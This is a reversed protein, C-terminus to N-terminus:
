LGGLTVDFFERTDEAVQRHTDSRSVGDKEICISPAVVRGMIGCEALFTYHGVGPLVALRSGPILEAVRRANSDGPATIDRDGVFILTPVSIDKLSEETLAMGAAPAIAVISRIRPDRYSLGQDAM